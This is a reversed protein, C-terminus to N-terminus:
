YKVKRKCRVEYNLNVDFYLYVKKKEVIQAKVISEIFVDRRFMDAIIKGCIIGYYLL